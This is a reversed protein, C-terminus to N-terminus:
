RPTEDLLAGVRGAIYEMQGEREQAWRPLRFASSALVGSGLVAMLVPLVLSARGLQELFFFATLLVGLILGMTGAVILAKANGKHTRLRLRHGTATPEVFAHLNGNTWERVGGRSMVKGKAGFTERLDGVLVEWERDTLARPLDVIRGVSTPVGMYTGRPLLERRTDIAFAAEAVREPEMGVERGVEQLQSLTLGGEDSLAPRGVHDGRAALDFIERVEEDKYKREDTM